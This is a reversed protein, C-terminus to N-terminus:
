DDPSPNHLWYLMVEVVLFPGVQSENHGASWSRAKAADAVFGFAAVADVLGAVHGDLHILFPFVSRPKALSKPSPVADILEKALSKSCMTKVNAINLDVSLESAHSQVPRFNSGRCKTYLTQNVSTKSSHKPTGLVRQYRRPGEM